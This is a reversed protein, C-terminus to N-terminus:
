NDSDDFENRRNISYVTFPEIRLVSNVGVAVQIGLAAREFVKNRKSIIL